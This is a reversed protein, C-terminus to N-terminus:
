APAPARLPSRLSTRGEAWADLLHRAWRADLEVLARAGFLVDRALHPAERALGGALDVAAINEHVADAEVHEDYFETVAPGFGLRRLGDGYRRNPVPSTMEFAAVHGVIAGLWRRHLGFLSMLNVTALTVGPLLDVYAGYRADLGLAAMTDAFLAAHTRAASGGGYEDHQIEMLAVKPGGTLRPIAFSHPGAEKLQYASRHVVFELFQAPTGSSELHSSLSPGDDADIIARLRLDMDAPAAPAPEDGRGVARVVAAEFAAELRRRLDLLAPDWEWRPDVGAFGRYHLEYLVYLALHLDDGALPDEAAVEADTPTGTAGGSLRDIVAGSLPGRPRPLPAGPPTAAPARHAQGISM